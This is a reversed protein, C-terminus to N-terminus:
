RGNMHWKSLEAALFTNGELIRYQGIEEPRVWCIRQGEVGRPKGQYEVVRWVDLYVTKDPYQHTTQVWPEASVIHIGLEEKFERILASFTDEHQERKGGPFEWYGAYVKNSPREAILICGEPNTLIGVVTYILGPEWPM